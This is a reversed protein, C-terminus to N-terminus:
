ISYLVNTTWEGKFLIREEAGPDRQFGLRDLLRRAPENRADIVSLVRRMGLSAFAYAVVCSVAESAFGRGQYPRAFTFGLEAEGAPETRCCLGCDGILVLPPSLTVAFQFWKEPTGPSVGAMSGILRRASEPPFSDWDQYRAVEPDDRYGTLAEADPARFRRILLRPTALSDFAPDQM